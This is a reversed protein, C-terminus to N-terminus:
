TWSWWPTGSPLVEYVKGVTIPGKPISARIGGGNQLAIQTGANKTKWLMGDAILNGLNSERRRVVAREGVLDVRAEAIVQQMLAMVPQAYALLAEKAFFDEPAAEPTMLLAEGKYALLEGKAGFTVELLGVVKGWEWAQVVLVDKGEPNKVVTPYPGM